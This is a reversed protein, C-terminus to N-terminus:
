IRCGVQGGAAGIVRGPLSWTYGASLFVAIAVTVTAPTWAAYMKISWRAQTSLATVRSCWAAAPPAFITTKGSANMGPVGM